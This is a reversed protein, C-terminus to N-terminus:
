SKRPKQKPRARRTPTFRSKDSATSVTLKRLGAAQSLVCWKSSPFRVWLVRHFQSSVLERRAWGIRKRHACTFKMNSAAPISTPFKTAAWWFACRPQWMPFRFAWSSRWNATSAYTSNPNAKCWTPISMSSARNRRSSRLSKSRRKPCFM